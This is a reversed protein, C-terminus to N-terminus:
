KDYHLEKMKKLMSEEKIKRAFWYKDKLTNNHIITDDLDLYLPNSAGSPFLIFRKNEDIIGNCNYERVFMAFAHEDSCTIKSFKQFYNTTKSIYNIKEALERNISFWLSGYYPQSNIGSSNFFISTARLVRKLVKGWFTRMHRTDAHPMWTRVRWENDQRIHSEIYNITGNKDWEKEMESFSILPFCEASILHFYKANTREIAADILKLTANVQSYGAWYVPLRDPLFCLNLINSVKRIPLTLEAKSDFHVIFYVDRFKEALAKIYEINHHALIMVVTNYDTM